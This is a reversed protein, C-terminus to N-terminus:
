RKQFPLQGRPRSRARKLIFAITTPIILLLSTTEPVAQVQISASTFGSISVGKAEADYVGFARDDPAFGITIVQPTMSESLNFNMSFLRTPTTQVTALPGLTGSDGNVYIDRGTPPLSAVSGPAAAFIPNTIFPTAFSFGNPLGVGAPPSVDFKLDFGSVQQVVTDSQATVHVSLTSGAVASAPGEVRLILGANCQAVWFLVMVCGIPRLVMSFRMGQRANHPINLADSVSLKDM